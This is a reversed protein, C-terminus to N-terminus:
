AGYSKPLGLVHEAIYNLTMEQTVPAIRFVRLDRWYREVHYETTYGYGGHVQMAQDAAQFAAEAAVYKAMNAEAGCPLGRDFAWAAKHNMLRALELHAKHRALPFALGQHTGIPAGFVHRQRAYDVALRLVLEGTGVCVATTAIREPNLTDLLLRWGRGEEGVLGALPIRVNDFYVFNTSSTHVGLKDIPRIEIGPSKPDLLFLSMGDTARGSASVSATRAILLMGGARDAGSIFVKRGNVVYSDGDRRATTTIRPTNTGADPETLAMCFELTGGALGPLYQRKQEESGHKAITVAGFVSNLIFILGASAGAGSAALEEMAIAMELTGLGSGGYEPPIVLGLWGGEALARWFEEPFRRRADQERWYDLGFPRAVDRVGHQVMRQEDTIAFDM